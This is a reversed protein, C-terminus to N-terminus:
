NLRPVCRMSYKKIRIGSRYINHNLHGVEVKDGPPNHFGNREACLLVDAPHIGDLKTDIDPNNQDQAHKACIM